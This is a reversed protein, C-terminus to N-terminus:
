SGVLTASNWPGTAPQRWMRLGGDICCRTCQRWVRCGCWSRTSGATVEEDGYNALADSADADRWPRIVLRETEITTM